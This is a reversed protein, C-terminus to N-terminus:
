KPVDPAPATYPVIINVDMEGFQSPENLKVQSSEVLTVSPLNEM